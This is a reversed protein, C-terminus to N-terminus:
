RLVTIKKVQREGGGDFQVFYVGPAVRQHKRDRGDWHLRLTGPDTVSDHLSLVERGRVDFIRVAVHSLSAIPLAFECGNASPNPGLRVEGSTAALGSTRVLLDGVDRRDEKLGLADRAVSVFAYSKGAVGTFTAEVAPDSLLWPRFAGGDESVFVSYSEVGAGADHGAWEVNLTGPSGVEIARVVSSRPPSDDIMNMWRNTDLAHGVNEDFVITAGNEIVDSDQIMPSPLVSFLIAAEGEPPAINPPLFGLWDDDPPQGTAPDITALNWVVVGSEPSWSSSVRVLIPLAPRLDCDRSGGIAVDALSFTSDGIVLASLEITDVDFQSVSLSDLVQVTQAPATATSKNEFHIAYPVPSSRLVCRSAGAGQPGIIENPDLSNLVLLKFAQLGDGCDYKVYTPVCEKLAELVDCAVAMGGVFPILKKVLETVIRPVLGELIDQVTIGL